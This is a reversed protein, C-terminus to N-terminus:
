AREKQWQPNFPHHDNVGWGEQVLHFADSMFLPNRPERYMATNMYMPQREPGPFTLLNPTLLCTHLRKISGKLGLLDEPDQVPGKHAHGYVSCRCRPSSM